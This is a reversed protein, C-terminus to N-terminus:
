RLVFLAFQPHDVDLLEASSFGAETAYQRLTDPRFVTAHM